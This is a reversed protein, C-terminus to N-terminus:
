LQHFQFRGHDDGEVHHVLYSIAANEDINLLHLLCQANRYNGNGGAFVFADVLQTMAGDFRRLLAKQRLLHVEAGSRDVVSDM